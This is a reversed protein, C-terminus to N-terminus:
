FASNEDVADALNWLTLAYNVAGVSNRRFHPLFAFQPLQPYDVGGTWQDCLNVHFRHFEGAFTIGQDENSMAIMIFHDAGHALRRHHCLDYPRRGLDLRNRHGIRVAHGIEGLGCEAQVLCAVDNAREALFERVDLTRGSLIDAIGGFIALYRYLM